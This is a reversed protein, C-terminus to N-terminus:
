FVLAMFVILAGLLGGKLVALSSAGSSPATAPGEFEIPSPAPSTGFFGRSRPSMVVVIVKEGKECSGKLGSIFFFPGSRDLKVKVESGKHSAIPSSINCSQYDEKTVQLVSDKEDDIKWVLSDGIKFRNSEAWRNLPEGSSSPVKWGDAKGGVLFEKAESLCFFVSVLVFSYAVSRGLYAM